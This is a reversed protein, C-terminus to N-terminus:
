LLPFAHGPPLAPEPFLHHMAHVRYTLLCSPEQLLNSCPPPEPRMHVYFALGPTFPTCSFQPALGLNQDKPVPLFLTSVLYQLLNDPSCHSSLCPQMIGTPAMFLGPVYSRPCLNMNQAPWRRAVHTRENAQSDSLTPHLAQPYLKCSPTPPSPNLM